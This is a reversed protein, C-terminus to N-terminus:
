DPPGHVGVSGAFGAEVVELQQTAFDGFKGGREFDPGQGCRDGRTRAPIEATEPNMEREDV